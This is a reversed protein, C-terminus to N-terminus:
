FKVNSETNITYYTNVKKHCFIDFDQKCIEPLGTSILTSCINQTYHIFRLYRLTWCFLTLFSLSFISSSLIIFHRSPTVFRITWCLIKCFTGWPIFYDIDLIQLSDSLYQSHLLPIHMQAGRFIYKSFSMHLAYKFIYYSMYFCECKTCSCFSTM